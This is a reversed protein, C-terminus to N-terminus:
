LDEEVTDALALPELAAQRGGIRALPDQLISQHAEEVGQEVVSVAIGGVDRDGGVIPVEM